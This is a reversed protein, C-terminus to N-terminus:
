NYSLGNADIEIEEIKYFLESGFDYYNHNKLHLRTIKEIEEIKNFLEGQNKLHLSYQTMNYNNPARMKIHRMTEDVAKDHTSYVGICQYLEGTEDFHTVVYMNKKDSEIFTIIKKSLEPPLLTNLVDYTDYKDM